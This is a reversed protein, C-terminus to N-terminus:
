AGRLEVLREEVVVANGHEDSELDVYETVRLVVKGGDAVNGFPVAMPGVRAASLWSWGQAAPKQAMGEGWLLYEGERVEVERTSALTWGAPEVSTETLLAAVGVGSPESPPHWWRLEGQPSFLRCEFIDDHVLESLTPTAHHHDLLGAGSRQVFSCRNPSYALGVAQTGLVTTCTDIATALSLSEKRWSYLTM